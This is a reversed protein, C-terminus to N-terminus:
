IVSLVNIFCWAYKRLRFFLFFRLKEEYSWSEEMIIQDLSDIFLFYKDIKIIHPRLIPEQYHNHAEPWALTNSKAALKLKSSGFCIAEKEGHHRGRERERQDWATCLKHINSRTLFTSIM